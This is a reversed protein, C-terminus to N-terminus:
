FAVLLTLFLLGAPVGKGEDKGILAVAFCLVALVALILDLTM